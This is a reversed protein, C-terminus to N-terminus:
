SSIARQIQLYEKLCVKEMSPIKQRYINKFGNLGILHFAYPNKLGPNETARLEIELRM